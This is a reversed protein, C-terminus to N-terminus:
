QIYREIREYQAREHMLQFGLSFLRMLMSMFSLTFVLVSVSIGWAFTIDALTPNLYWLLILLGIMFLMVAGQLIMYLLAAAACIALRIYLRIRRFRLIAMADSNSLRTWGLYTRMCDKLVISLVSVGLSLFLSMFWCTNVAIDSGRARPPAPDPALPLSTEAIQRLVQRSVLLRSSTQTYDEQLSQYSQIVFGTLV